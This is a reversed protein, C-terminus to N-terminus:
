CQTPAEYQRTEKNNNLCKPPGRTIHRLNGMIVVPQKTENRVKAGLADRCIATTCSQRLITLLGIGCNNEQNNEQM